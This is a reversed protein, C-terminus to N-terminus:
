YVIHSVEALHIASGLFGTFDKCIDHHSFALNYNLCERLIVLRFAFLVHENCITVCVIERIDQLWIRQARSWILAECTQEWNAILCKNKLRNLTLAEESEILRSDLFARVDENAVTQYDEPNIIFRLAILSELFEVNICFKLSISLTPESTQSSETDPGTSIQKARARAENAYQDCQRPFSCISESDRVPASRRSFYQDSIGQRECRM